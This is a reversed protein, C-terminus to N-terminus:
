YVVFISWPKKNCRSVLSSPIRSFVLSVAQAKHELFINQKKGLILVRQLGDAMANSINIKEREWALYFSTVQLFFVREAKGVIKQWSLIFVNEELCTPVDKRSRTSRAKQMILVYNLANLSCYCLAM